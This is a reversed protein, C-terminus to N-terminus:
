EVTRLDEIVRGDNPLTGPPVLIVDGRLKTVAELAEALRAALAPDPSPAEVSLMMTDHDRERSIVLRLRGLGPFRRALEAIQEPRVFMGRVKTAQDARGLWGRIRM